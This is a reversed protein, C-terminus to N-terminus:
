GAPGGRLPRGQSARSENDRLRPEYHASFIKGVLERRSRVGTKEFISKLHAQVTHLSIFLAAAIDSTSEGQLVLQAVDKERETLQYASMLLPAVRAPDSHEIIVAVRVTGDTRMPAGHLTIWRGSRGLVRAVAVEGPRDASGDQRAARGAVALVAAPLRGQRIWSSDPLDDLWQEAGATVSAIKWDEDLVVLGPAQPNDPDQAEGILLAKRAGEALLPAVQGLFRLEDATFLPQNPQRYLTLLAWTHGARNRLAVVAQQDGGYPAVFQRWGSSQEPHGGTAEHLTAIGTPDRAVAALSIVDDEYYEHALWAPPLEPILGHDYHSTILLSAPDITFWCPTLYHPVVQELPERCSEWFTVLDDARSAAVQIRRAARELQFGSVPCMTPSPWDRRFVLNRPHCPALAIRLSEGMIM